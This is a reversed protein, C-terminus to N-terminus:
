IYLLICSFEPLISPSSCEGEYFADMFRTNLTISNSIFNSYCSKELMKMADPHDPDNAVSAWATPIREIVTGGHSIVIEATQVPNRTELKKPDHLLLVSFQNNGHMTSVDAIDCAAILGDGQEPVVTASVKIKAANKKELFPKKFVEYLVKCIDGKSLGLINFTYHRSKKNSRSKEKEVAIVV